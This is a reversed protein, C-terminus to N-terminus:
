QRVAISGYCLLPNAEKTIVLIGYLTPTDFLFGCYITNKKFVEINAKEDSV